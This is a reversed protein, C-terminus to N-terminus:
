QQTLSVANMVVPALSIVLALSFPAKLHGSFPDWALLNPKYREPSKQLDVALWGISM